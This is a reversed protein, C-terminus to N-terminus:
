GYFLTVGTVSTLTGYPGIEALVGEGPLPLYTTGANAVAPTSFAVLVPGGNGDAISISGATAGNVIYVGKIRLRGLNATDVANRFAGTAALEKSAKVDTQTAM